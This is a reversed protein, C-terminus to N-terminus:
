PNVIKYRNNRIYGVMRLLHDGVYKDARSSVTLITCTWPIYLSYSTRGLMFYIGDTTKDYASLKIIRKIDTINTTCAEIVFSDNVMIHYKYEEVNIDEAISSITQSKCSSSILM